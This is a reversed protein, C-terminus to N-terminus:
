GGILSYLYRYHMRNGQDKDNQHKKLLKKTEEIKEMIIPKSLNDLYSIKSSSSSSLEDPVSETKPRSDGVSARSMGILNHIYSAQLNKEFETLPKGKETILWINKHIDSLFEETSYDSHYLNIRSILVPNMLNDLIESQLKFLENRRSGLRREIEKNLMWDPQTRLENFIWAVAEKQKERSIPNFYQGEEGEVLKYIYVGGIYTIVHRLYRNYQTVLESNMHNLFDFDETERTTWEVLHEMIYKANIVGYTSAKIADNGLAENQSAPDLGLDMQQDGYRYILSDAKEMIWANLIPYEDKPSEAEFIPKYGWKIAFVDYPGMRPPALATVNDGVQAIYNFRAYDMISPTTGNRETFGPSRLSDVPFAYSARMNHKLGITHGVEHAAVYRIMEGLLEMDTNEKRARSEVAGCQVFRWDRLLETVNHWWLVDGGIVEGSRPDIWRPGMSNAKPMSIYRICSYRIDEPHFNPDDLPYDLAVIANKFGIAEFAVQWDEIGAKIYPRWDEPFANDVYFVIGKAPEVLEGAKYKEMDEPRPYLNFRSIYKLTEVGIFDSSFYRKSNTFYGIRTDEYRPRMPKEPLLLVSNHMVIMFPAADSNTYSMQTRVETNGPFSMVELIMTADTELKGAKYKSNFPSVQPLETSFFKTVDFVSATSDANLTELPFTLLIPTITNRKVSVTIEDDEDSIYDSVIQHMYINKNDRSFRIMIPSKRMEGAVVKTTSSLESVRSGLLMDRGLLSDGLVFFYKDDLKYVDFLGEAVKDAKKVFDSWGKKPKDKKEATQTSGKDTETSDTQAFLNLSLFSFLVIAITVNIRSLFNRERM